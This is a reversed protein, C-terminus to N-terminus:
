QLLIRKMFSLKLEQQMTWSCILPGFKEMQSVYRLMYHQKPISTKNPKLNVFCVFIDKLVYESTLWLTMLVHHHLLVAVYELYLLFYQGVIHVM